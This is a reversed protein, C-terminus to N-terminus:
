NLSFDEEGQSEFLLRVDDPTVDLAIALEALSRESAQKLIREYAVPPKKNRARVEAIRQRFTKVVRVSDRCTGRRIQNKFHEEELAASRETFGDVDMQPYEGILEEAEAKTLVPRLRGESAVPFSIRMPHRAGVPLLMYTEQPQDVIEDVKCVGQGPHVIYEGVQYM